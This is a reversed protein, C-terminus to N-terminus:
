GSAHSRSSVRGACVVVGTDIGIIHDVLAEFTLPLMLPTVLDVGRDLLILTDIEPEVTATADSGEEKRFRTIMDVVMQVAASWVCAGILGRLLAAVSCSHRVKSLLGKSKVNPITGFRKQLDMVARAVYSLCSLDEEVYCEQLACLSSNRSGTARVAGCLAASLSQAISHALSRTLSPSPPVKFAEPMEMSLLDDDLPILSLPFESASVRTGVFQTSCRRGVRCGHGHMGPVGEGGIALDAFVGEDQLIKECVFSRKPLFRLFFQVEPQVGM